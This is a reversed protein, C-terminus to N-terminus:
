REQLHSARDVAKRAAKASKPHLSVLWWERGDNASKVVVRWWLGDVEGLFSVARGRPLIAVPNAITSIAARFDDATLNREAHDALIHWASDASLTVLRTRSGFAEALPKPVQAVPVYLKSRQGASVVAKLLPSAVIDEAAVRQRNEPMAEIQDYLLKSVNAARNKGPNTDWGPDVGAPVEVTEGTRQNKWRRMILQPAPQDDRWGLREAESQSIQRVRCKCGWGNPPYLRDWIPDDVRAIIGVWGEHQLRRRESVSLTYLLFPLFRKNRQTREWEGAAHATSTNAWYITRLRRPSGLQVIKPLDDKPDTQIRRGWWGKRRLIPELSQQFQDFPTRNVIADDVASRLDDLVDHEMSKAVTFSFAHEEPAVDRWDFSPLSRKTRFYRVVEEPATKFLEATV